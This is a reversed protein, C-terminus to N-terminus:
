SRLAVAPRIGIAAGAVHVRPDGARLDVELLSPRGMGHGQRLTLRAAAPVLALDRACAGFAAAAAGTAADEM